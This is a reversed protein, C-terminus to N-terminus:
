RIFNTLVEVSTEPEEIKGKALEKLKLLWAMNKGLNHMTQMGEADQKVEGEEMGFGMNWYSSGVVIMQTITFFSNLSHLASLSGARRVATLGAGIKRALVNGGNAFNLFSTRDIFGKMQASINACYVPSGLLIGDAERMKNFQENLDDTKIICKGDGNEFCKMCGMCGRYPKVAINVEETEIGEKELEEFVTQILIHTNGTKRPSGNFAIVKM